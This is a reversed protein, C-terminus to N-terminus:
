LIREFFNHPKETSAIHTSQLFLSGELVCIDLDSQAENQKRMKFFISLKTYALLEM